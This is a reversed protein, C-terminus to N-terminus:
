KYQQVYINYTEHSDKVTSTTWLQEAPFGNKPLAFELLDDAATFYARLQERSLQIRHNTDFVNTGRDEPIESAIDLRVDLLDNLSHGFEHRSLRRYSEFDPEASHNALWQLIAKREDPSPQDAESPPMRETIVNEFVLTADFKDRDLFETLNLGGEKSSADHCDM